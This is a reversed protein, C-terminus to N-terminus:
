HLFGPWRTHVRKLAAHRRTLKLRAAIAAAADALRERWWVESPSTASWAKALAEICTADGLSTVATLYDLPLPVRAHDFTERLDYLAVASGRRALVAHVGGRAVVWALREAEGAAHPEHTRIQAIMAHLASLPSDAHAALWSQVAAPDLPPREATGPTQELIPQIIDGPLQSLADRAAARVDADQTEALACGVLAEMVRTGEERIVWPRLAHVAQLRVAQSPDALGAMALDVVRPDDIGELAHLAAVRDQEQGQKLLMELRAVARSGLVRLRAIATDRRVASDDRLAQLLQEVERSSSSRIVV